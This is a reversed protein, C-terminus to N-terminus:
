FMPLSLSPRDGRQRDCISRGAAPAGRRGGLAPAWRLPPTGPARRLDPRREEASAIRSALLIGPM